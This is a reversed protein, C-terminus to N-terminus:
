NIKIGHDKVGFQLGNILDGYNVDKINLGLYFGCFRMAINFSNGLSVWIVFLM